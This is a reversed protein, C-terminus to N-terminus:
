MKSAVNNNWQLSDVAKTQEQVTRSKIRCSDVVSHRNTSSPPLCEWLTKGLPTSLLRSSLGNARSKRPFSAWRHPSTRPSPASHTKFPWYLPPQTDYTHKSPTVSHTMDTRNRVEVHPKLSGFLTLYKFWTMYQGTTLKLFPKGEWLLFHKVCPKLFLFFFCVICIHVQWYWGIMFLIYHKDQIDWSMDWGRM